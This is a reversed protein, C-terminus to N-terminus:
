ITKEDYVGVNDNASYAQKFIFYALLLRAPNSNRERRKELIRQRDEQFRKIFIKSTTIPIIKKM